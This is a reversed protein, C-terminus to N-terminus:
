HLIYITINLYSQRLYFFFTVQGLYIFGNSELLERAEEKAMGPLQVSWQNVFHGHKTIEPHVCDNDDYDSCVDEGLSINKTICLSVLIIFLSKAM